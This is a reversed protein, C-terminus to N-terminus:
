EIKKQLELMDGHPSQSAIVVPANPLLLLPLVAGQRPPYKPRSFPGTLLILQMFDTLMYYFLKQTMVSTLLIM